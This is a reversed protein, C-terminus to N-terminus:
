GYLALGAWFWLFGVFWFLSGGMWVLSVGGACFVASVGVCGGCLCVDFCVGAFIGGVLVLSGGWGGGGGCGGCVMAGCSCDAALSLLFCVVSLACSCVVTGFCVCLLGM